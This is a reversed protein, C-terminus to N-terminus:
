LLAFTMYAVGLTLLVDLTQLITYLLLATRAHLQGRLSQINTSFGLCVFGLTMWWVAVDGLMPVVIERLEESVTFTTLLSGALYGSFRLSM